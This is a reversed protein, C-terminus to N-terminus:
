KFVRHNTSSLIKDTCIPIAKGTTNPFKKGFLRNGNKQNPFYFIFTKRAHAVKIFLGSLYPLVIAVTYSCMFLIICLMQQVWDPALM